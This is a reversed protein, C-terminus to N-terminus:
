QSVIASPLRVVQLWFNLVSQLMSLYDGRDKPKAIYCNVHLNCADVVDAPLAAGTLVIIPIDCLGINAKAQALVDRGNSGPLNLFVLDPRHAKAYAARKHLYDLADAGNGAVHLRVARKQTKLAQSIVEVDDPAADVLLIEVPRHYSM